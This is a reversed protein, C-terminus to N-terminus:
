AADGGLHHHRALAPQRRRATVPHKLHRVRGAQHGRCPSGTRVTGGWAAPHDPNPLSYPDTRLTDASFIRGSVAEVALARHAGDLWWPDIDAACAPHTHTTPAVIGASGTGARVQSETATGNGAPRRSENQSM